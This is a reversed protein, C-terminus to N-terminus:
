KGARRSSIIAQRDADPLELTCIGPVTMNVRENLM